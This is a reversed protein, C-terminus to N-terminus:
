GEGDYDAEETDDYKDRWAATVEGQLKIFRRELRALKDDLVDLRALVGDAPPESPAVPPRFPWM